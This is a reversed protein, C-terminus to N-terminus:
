PHSAVYANHQASLEQIAKVLVPLLAGYGAELREPNEQNVLSPITVSHLAQATLLEQALFGMSSEGVKAGDRCNWNFAVPRVSNIFDLGTTLSVINTKDRADSLSSITTQACRLTTISGNGLTISNDTGLAVTSSGNGICTNNSGTTLTSGASLGIATNANGSTVVPFTLAGFATNSNVTSAVLSQYGVATCNAGTVNVKLAETGVATNNSATNVVLASHGVATNNAGSANAKLSEFGVATNLTGSTNATLASRGVATIGAATNNQLTQNGVAVCSTAANSVAGMSQYGIAVNNNSSQATGLAINGLATNAFGTTNAVLANFGVATNFIGTTNAVLANTGVAVTNGVTHANLASVGVAVNNSGTLNTNLAGVGIGVNQAGSTNSDLAGSGVATNSTGSTNGILTQYGIATNNGVSANNSALANVGFASNTGVANNGKGMTLGQLTAPGTWVVDISDILGWGLYAALDNRLAGDNGTGVSATPEGNADFALYKGLRAAKAPLTMDLTIDDIIPNKLSRIASDAVQQIQITARDLSDTIVSPFFGGQNTLDTPQLYAVDSTVALTETNSPATVMTVNGGPATDQDLNLTVTYHTNLTLTTSVGASTVRVVVIDTTEFVKFTFGFIVTSGNGLFSISRTTSNITM